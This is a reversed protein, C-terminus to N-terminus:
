SCLDAKDNVADFHSYPFLYISNIKKAEQFEVSLWDGQVPLNIWPGSDWMRTKFSSSLNGDIISEILYPNMAHVSGETVDLVVTPDQMLDVLLGEVLPSLLTAYIPSKNM